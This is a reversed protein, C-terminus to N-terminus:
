DQGSFLLEAILGAAIVALGLGILLSLGESGKYNKQNKGLLQALEEQEFPTIVGIQAKNTLYQIRENRSDM